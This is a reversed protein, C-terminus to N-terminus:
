DPPVFFIITKAVVITSHSIISHTLTFEVEVGISYGGLWAFLNEAVLGLKPNCTKMM